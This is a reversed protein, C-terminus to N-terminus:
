GIELLIGLLKESSLGFRCTMGFGLCTCHLSAQSGTTGLVLTAGELGGCGDMFGFSWIMVVVQFVLVGEYAFPENGLFIWHQLGKDYRLM